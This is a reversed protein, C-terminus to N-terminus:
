QEEDKRLLDAVIADWDVFQFVWDLLRDLLLVSRARWREELMYVKWDLPLTCYVKVAERLVDPSTAARRRMINHILQDSKIWTLVYETPRKLFADDSLRPRESRGKKKKKV